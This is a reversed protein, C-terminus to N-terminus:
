GEEAGAASFVQEAEAKGLLVGLEVLGALAQSSYLDIAAFHQIFLPHGVRPANKSKRRPHTVQCEVAFYSNM